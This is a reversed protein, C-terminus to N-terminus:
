LTLEPRPQGEDDHLITVVHRDGYRCPSGQRPQGDTRTSAAFQRVEGIRPGPSMGLQENGLTGPRLPGRHHSGIGIPM